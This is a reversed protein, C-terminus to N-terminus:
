GVLYTAPGAVVHGDLESVNFPTVFVDQDTVLVFVTGNLTPATNDGFIRGDPQTTVGAGGGSQTTTINTLPTYTTNFQSIWAVFKPESANSRTIYSENYGVKRGPEEWELFVTRGPETLPITRNHTIAPITSNGVETANFYAIATPQNTINLGPFNNWEIRPNGEPCNQTIGTTHWFPMPFLGEFQRFAMQQRAEVTISQLLINAAPRSDLQELFGYVGAEGWKTLRVNYEIFERVTIFPYKYKCPQAASPGLMNTIATAHGVEQEAMYQILYRDEANIGFADFEEDSFQVLAHHFWDLEIYEQNLALNLSQFDFDSMPAYVPPTFNATLGGPPPPKLTDNSASASSDVVVQRGFVNVNVTPVATASLALALSLLVVRIM